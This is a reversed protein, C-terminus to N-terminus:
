GDAPMYSTRAVRDDGSTSLASLSSILAEGRRSAELAAGGLRRVRAPDDAQRLMLDLAGTMVGLMAYFDHVFAGPLRGVAEAEFRPPVAMEVSTGDLATLGEVDVIAAISGTIQGKDNEIPMATVAVLVSRRTAPNSLMHRFGRVTQGRLARASPLLDAAVPRGDPLTIGWTASHFRLGILEADRRGLLQNAARNAFVFKGTRDTEVLAVPVANLTEFLRRDSEEAVRQVLDLQGTADVQRSRTTTALWLGTLGLAWGAAALGSVAWMWDIQGELVM